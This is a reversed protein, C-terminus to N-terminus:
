QICVKKGCSEYVAFILRMVRAAEEASIPFERGSAICDYFDDFLAGHANGYYSKGFGEFSGDDTFIPKDDLLVSRQLVTLKQGNELVLTIETPLNAAANITAFFSFEAAGGFFASVTDEVEVGERAKMVDARATVCSPMGCFLMLLDLTHLAQNILVGGGAEYLKGRWPSEAFYAEGRSWVVSAHGCTVKHEGLLDFAFRTAANYRNQHVVGLRARSRKEVLLVAELEDPHAALPKECLVNVGRELAYITQGVHLYHPTCIHVVDIEEAALMDEYNAYIRADPASAAALKRAKDTDTDCIACISRGQESLIKAHITGIVGAGVIATKLAM